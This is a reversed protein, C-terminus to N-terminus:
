EDNAEMVRVEQIRRDLKRAAWENLVGLRILRADIGSDIVTVIMVAVIWPQTNKENVEIKPLVTQFSAL